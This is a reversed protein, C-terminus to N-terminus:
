RRPSEHARRYRCSHASACSRARQELKPWSQSRAWSTSPCIRRPSRRALGFQVGCEDYATRHDRVEPKVPRVGKRIRGRIEGSTVTKMGSIAEQSMGAAALEGANSGEGAGRDSVKSGGHCGLDRARHGEGGGGGFRGRRGRSLRGWGRAGRSFNTGRRHSSTRITIVRAVSRSWTQHARRALPEDSLYRGLCLLQARATCDEAGMAAFSWYTKLAVELAQRSLLAAARPWLGATGPSARDVLARAVTLLERAPTADSSSVREAGGPAGHSEARHGRPDEPRVGARRPQRRQVDQVRRRWGDVLRDLRTLVEGGGRKEDDFLALAMLPHLRANTELLQEIDDHREGRKLRVRRIRDMCAAELASRCFGPVVREVVERPLEKTLLVARADDIYASVPDLGPRTEVLSGARRSVGIVSAPIGLRRVAEPLRDDHTFVIVQRTLATDALARALGEVRAPDMSQVPDDVSIFRFPSEPLTARPLFLSLALSHLEGQSMVGLADANAGDVSVPLTVHRRQATGALEIDGLDVNSQLRLQKWVDAVRAAIPKFRENRMANAAEKLWEEAKRLQPLQSTAAQAARASPLWEAIRLQVPRWTDERRTLEIGAEDALTAVAEALELVHGELHTALASATTLELGKAWESWMTRVLSLSDLSTVEAAQALVPPVPPVVSRAHAIVARRENDAALCATAERTLREVEAITDVRWGAGLADATGCVPCATPAHKEHFTLAETLLRACERSREANTGAFQACARDAARLREVIASVAVPDPRALSQLRRLIDIGAAGDTM